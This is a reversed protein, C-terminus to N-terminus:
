KHIEVLNSSLESPTQGTKKRIFHSFSAPSDFGLTFAIEKLPVNEFILLRKAELLLRNHIVQLPSSGLHKKTIGSLKKETIHLENAYHHVLHEHMYKEDLLHQFAILIAREDASSKDHSFQFNELLQLLMAQLYHISIERSFTSSKEISKDITTLMEHFLIVRESQEEFIVAPNEGFSIQRLLSRLSVSYIAEEPFQILLGVADKGRNLLHVQRPFVIYASNPKVPYEIFDILQNGGGSKFFLIEFYDHRHVRTYDYPNKHEIERVCVPFNTGDLSHVPIPNEAHFPGPM